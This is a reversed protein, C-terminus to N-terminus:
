SKRVFSPRRERESLVLPGFSTKRRIKRGKTKRVGNYENREWEESKSKL